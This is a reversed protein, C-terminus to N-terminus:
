SVEYSFYRPEEFVVIREIKEFTTTKDAYIIKGSQCPIKGNREQYERLDSLNMFVGNDFFVNWGYGSAVNIHVVKKENDEDLFEPMKDISLKYAKEGITGSYWQLNLTFNDQHPKEFHARETQPHPYSVLEEEVPMEEFVPAIEVPHAEEEYVGAEFNAENPSGEVDHVFGDLLSAFDDGEKNEEPEFEVELPEKEDVM